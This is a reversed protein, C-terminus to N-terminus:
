RLDDVVKEGTVKLDRQKIERIFDILDYSGLFEETLSIIESDPDSKRLDKISEQLDKVTPSSMKIPPGTSSVTALTKAREVTLQKKLRLIENDKDVLSEPNEKNIIDYAKSEFEAYVNFLKTEFKFIKLSPCFIKLILVFFVVFAFSFLINKLIKSILLKNLLM